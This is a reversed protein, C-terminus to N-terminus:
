DIDLESVVELARVLSELEPASVTDELTRELKEVIAFIKPAMDWAKQTLSIVNLRADDPHPKTSVLDMAELRRIMTVAAAKGIGARKAFVGLSIDEEQWLVGLAMLQHATIGFPVLAKNYYSIMTRAVQTTLSCLFYKPESAEIRM